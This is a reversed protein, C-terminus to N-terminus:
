TLVFRHERCFITLVREGPVLFTDLAQEIVDYNGLLLGCPMPKNMEPTLISVQGYKSLQPITHMCQMMDAVTNLSDVHFIHTHILKKTDIHVYRLTYNAPYLPDTTIHMEDDPHIELEGIRQKIDDWNSDCVVGVRYKITRSPGRLTVHILKGTSKEATTYIHNRLKTVHDDTLDHEGHTANRETYTSM